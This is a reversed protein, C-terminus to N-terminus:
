TQRTQTAAGEAEEEGLTETGHTWLPRTPQSIKMLNKIWLNTKREDRRKKKWEGGPSLGRISTELWDLSEKRTNKGLETVEPRGTEGFGELFSLERFVSKRSGSSKGL